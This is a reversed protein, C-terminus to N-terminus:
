ASRDFMWDGAVFQSRDLAVQVCAVIGQRPQEDRFAPLRHGPLGDVVEDAGRCPTGSETRKMRVHKAMRASKEESVLAVIQPQYLIVEPVAIGLM